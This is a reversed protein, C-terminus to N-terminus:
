KVNIQLHIAGDDAVSDLAQAILASLDIHAAASDASAVLPQLAPALRRLDPGVQQLYATLGAIYLPFGNEVHYDDPVNGNHALTAVQQVAADIKAGLQGWLPGAAAMSPGTWAMDGGISQLQTLLSRFEGTRSLLTAALLQTSRTLQPIVSELGAFGQDLTKILSGIAAPDLEGLLRTVTRAVDPISIPMQIARTDIRAGDRLYDGAGSPTFQVYPEGLASLNEITVASNAPVHYHDSIRLRVEVGASTNNVATVTGVAVGSLLVPSGPGLSGSNTLVMTATTYKAFWDARVIGFTLYYAGVLFVALIAGLSIISSRKM